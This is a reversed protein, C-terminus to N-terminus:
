GQQSVWTNVEKTIQAGGLQNWKQVFTDFSSLPAGEIIQTITQKELSALTSWYRNFAQTYDPGIYADRLNLGKDIYLNQIIHFGTPDAPDDYYEKYAWWDTRVHNDLYNKARNYNAIELGNLGSADGSNIAKTVDHFATLDKDSPDEWVPGAFQLWEIKKYDAPTEYYEKIYLNFLKIFAEPYKYGNKLAFFHDVRDSSIGPRAAQGDNSVLPYVRWEIKPNKKMEFQIPYEPQWWPGVLLGIKGATVDELIKQSSMVGFQQDITGNKYMKQLEALATKMQPQIGGWVLNGNSDKIWKTPYAHYGNFFGDIGDLAWGFGYLLDKNIEFGITDNKGDGNPDETAFAHAIRILDGMTKPPQLHLKQLWDYRLWILPGSEANDNNGPIGYLKGNFKAQPVGSGNDVLMIHKFSKSAYTNFADTLDALRGAAYFQHFDKNNLPLIDPLDGSAVTTQWKQQSSATPAAWMLVPKIGLDQQAWRTWWNDSPTNQTDYQMGDDNPVVFTIKVEPSMKGFPGSNQQPTAAATSAQNAASGTAEKTGGAFVLTASAFLLVFVAVFVGGSPLRCGSRKTIEMGYDEEM